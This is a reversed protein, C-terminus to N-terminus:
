RSQKALGPTVEQIFTIPVYIEGDSVTIVNGNLDLLFDFKEGQVALGNDQVSDALSGDAFLFHAGNPNLFEVVQFDAVSENQEAFAVLQATDLEKAHMQTFHPTKSQAMLTDIAGTLNVVLISALAVLMSAAAVFLMTTLAIMKNKLINNRLLRYVM